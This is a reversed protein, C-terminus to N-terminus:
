DSTAGVGTRSTCSESVAAPALWPLKPFDELPVRGDAKAAFRPKRGTWQLSVDEDEAYSASFLPRMRFRQRRGVGICESISAIRRANRYREIQVVLHIAAAVQLKAAYHPLREKSMMCLTELRTLADLPTNAHVTTLAGAHGSLMSQVMDLAEGGRVEGVIIRDPRMRLSDVFLDRITMQGRGLRDGPCAELYIAHPKHLRLESTDEIVLIREEDPIAGSLANLLTTKGTGTGGSVVINARLRVALRLADAADATLAGGQVLDDLSFKRNNFRRIAICLGDRRVRRTMVHVRSGDTLRGSLSHHVEDLKRDMFEALNIALSELWAADPFRLGNARHLRAGKEYFIEKPGNILIETVDPDEMLTAVPALFYRLSQDYLSPQVV